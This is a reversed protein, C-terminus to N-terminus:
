FVLHHGPITPCAQLRLVQSASVSSQLNSAQAVYHSRTELLRFFSVFVGGLSLTGCTHLLLPLFLLLITHLTSQHALLKAAPVQSTRLTEIYASYCSGMAPWYCTKTSASEAHVEVCQTCMLEGLQM